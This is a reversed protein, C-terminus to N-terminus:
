FHHPKARAATQSHVARRHSAKRNYQYSTVLNSKKAERPPVTIARCGASISGLRLTQRPAMPPCPYTQLICNEGTRGRSFYDPPRTTVVTSHIRVIDTVPQFLSWLRCDHQPGTGAAAEREVHCHELLLDVGPFSGASVSEESAM